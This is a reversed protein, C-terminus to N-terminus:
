SSSQPKKGGPKKKIRTWQYRVWKDIQGQDKEAAERQPRQPTFGLSRLLKPLHNAHYEVGFKDKIVQLVRKSTWLDNPFGAKTPGKLIIKQLKILDKEELKTPRGTSVRVALGKAGSKRYAALWKRITRDHIKLKRAVEAATLGESDILDMAEQRRDELKDAKGRPRGM